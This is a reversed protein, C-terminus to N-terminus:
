LAQRAATASAGSGLRALVDVIAVGSLEVALGWLGLAVWSSLNSNFTVNDLYQTKLGVLSVVVVSACGAFVRAYRFFASVPELDDYWRGAGGDPEASKDGPPPGPLDPEVDRSQHRRNYVEEALETQGRQLLRVAERLAQNRPARLFSGVIHGTLILHDRIRRLEAQIEDTRDPWNWSQAEVLNRYAEDVAADALKRDDRGVKDRCQEIADSVADLQDYLVATQSALVAASNRHRELEAFEQETRALDHRLILDELENLRIRANLPLDRGNTGWGMTRRLADFRRMLAAQPTLGETIWKIILGLAAGTAIVVFAVVAWKGGRQGVGIVLPLEESDAGSAVVVTERYIGSEVREPGWPDVTVTVLVSNGTLPTATLAVQDSPFQGAEHHPDRMLWVVHGAPAGAGPSALEVVASRTLPRRIKEFSVAIGREEGVVMEDAPWGFLIVALVGSYVVAFVAM